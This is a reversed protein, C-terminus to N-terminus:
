GRSVTHDTYKYSMSHRLASLFCYLCSLMESWPPHPFPTTNRIRQSFDNPTIQKPLSTSRKRNREGARRQPFAGNGVWCRHLQKFLWGTCVWQEGWPEAETSPKQTGEVPLVGPQLWKAGSVPATEWARGSLTLRFVKAMLVYYFGLSFRPMKSFKLWMTWEPSIRTSWLFRHRLPTLLFNPKM